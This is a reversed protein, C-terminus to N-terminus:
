NRQWKPSVRRDFHGNILKNIPHTPNRLALIEIIAERQVHAYLETYEFQETQYSVWM